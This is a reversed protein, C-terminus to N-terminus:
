VVDLPFQKVLLYVGECIPSSPRAFWLTQFKESRTNPRTSDCLLMPQNIYRSLVFDIKYLTTVM